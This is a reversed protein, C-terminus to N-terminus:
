KQVLRGIFIQYINFVSKSGVVMGRKRRKKDERKQSKYPSRSRM